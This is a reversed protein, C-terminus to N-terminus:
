SYLANSISVKGEVLPPTHSISTIIKVPGTDVSSITRDFGTAMHRELTGGYVAQQNRGRSLLRFGFYFFLFCPYPYTDGSCGICFEIWWRPKYICLDCVM